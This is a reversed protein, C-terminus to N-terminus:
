EFRVRSEAVIEAIIQKQTKTVRIPIRDGVKGSKQAIGTMEVLIVGKKVEVAVPEGIRVVQKDTVDELTLVHAANLSRKLEKGVLDKTTALHQHENTVDRTTVEVDTTLPTTGKTMAKKLVMVPQQVRVWGQLVLPNLFQEDFYVRVMSAGRTDRLDEQLEWHSFTKPVQGRLPSLNSIQYICDACLSQLRAQLEKQVRELSFEKQKKLKSERSFVLQIECDCEQEFPSLERRVTKLLEIKSMQKYENSTLSLVIKEVGAKTSAGLGYVEAVDGLYVVRQEPLQPDLSVLVSPKELAMALNLFFLLTLFM